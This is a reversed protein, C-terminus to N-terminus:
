VTGSGLRNRCGSKSADYGEANATPMRRSSFGRELGARNSSCRSAIDFDLRMNQLFCHLRTGLQVASVWLTYWDSTTACDLYPAAGDLKAELVSSTVGPVLVLPPLTDSGYTTNALSFRWDKSSFPRQVSCEIPCEISCGISCEISCGISCEISGASALRPEHHRRRQPLVAEHPQGQRGCSCDGMRRRAHPGLRYRGLSAAHPLVLVIQTQAIGTTAINRYLDFSPRKTRVLDPSSRNVSVLGFRPCYGDAWEWNDSLTWQIYGDVPVGEDMARKIALLHEILYSPRARIVHTYAHTCVHLLLCTGPM